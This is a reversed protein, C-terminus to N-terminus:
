RCNVTKRVRTLRAFETQGPAGQAKIQKHFLILTNAYSVALSPISIPDSIEKVPILLEGRWENRITSSSNRQVDAIAVVTPFSTKRDICPSSSAAPASAKPSVPRPCGHGLWATWPTLSSSKPQRPPSLTASDPWFDSLSRVSCFDLHWRSPHYPPPPLSNWSPPSM